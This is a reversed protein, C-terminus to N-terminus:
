RWKLVDLYINVNELGKEEFDNGNKQPSPYPSIAGKRFTKLTTNSSGINGEKSTWPPPPTVQVRILFLFARKTLFTCSKAFSHTKISYHSYKAFDKSSTNGM